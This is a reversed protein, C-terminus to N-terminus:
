DPLTIAADGARMMGKARDFRLYALGAGNAQTYLTGVPKEGANIPTGVPATGSVAVTALGKRLETKHKMRATVEQGVYCGKRHDVGGLRDFGVELIYTENPVLEIGTEPISHAVRLADWDIAPVAGTTGYARWGLDPHRPDVFADEPMDGTGRTVPMNAEEIQVDARLRYMMLRQALGPVMDSKVDILIDDGRDLLFFDALYKGQPTLLASYVLESPEADRTVLGKLFDHADAGSIRLVSRDTATEGSM